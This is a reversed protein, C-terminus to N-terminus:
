THQYDMKPICYGCTKCHYACPSKPAACKCRPRRRALYPSAAQPSLLRTNSNLDGDHDPESSPFSNTATARQSIAQQKATAIIPPNRSTTAAQISLASAGTYRSFVASSPWLTQGHPNLFSANM